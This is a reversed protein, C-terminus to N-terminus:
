KEVILRLDDRDRVTRTEGCWPCRVVYPYDEVPRRAYLAGNGPSAIPRRYTPRRGYRLNTSAHNSRDWLGKADRVYGEPAYLFLQLQEM